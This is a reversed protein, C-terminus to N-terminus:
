LLQFRRLVGTSGPHFKQRPKRGHGASSEGVRWAYLAASYPVARLRGVVM